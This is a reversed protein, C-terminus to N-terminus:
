GEDAGLMALRIETLMHEAEDLLNHAEDIRPRGPRSSASEIGTLLEVRGPRGGSQSSAPVVGETSAMISSSGITFDRNL